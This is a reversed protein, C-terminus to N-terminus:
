DNPKDFPPGDASAGVGGDHGGGVKVEQYADELFKIIAQKEDARKILAKIVALSAAFAKRKPNREIAAEAAKTIKSVKPKSKKKDDEKKKGM